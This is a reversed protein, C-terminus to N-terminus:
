ICLLVFGDFLLSEIMLFTFFLMEETDGLIIAFHLLLDAFTKSFFVRSSEIIASLTQKLIVPTGYQTKNLTKHVFFGPIFKLM